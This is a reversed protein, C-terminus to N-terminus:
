ETGNNGQFWNAGCVIECFITTRTEKSRTGAVSWASGDAGPMRLEPTRQVLEVDVADAGVRRRCFPAHFSSVQCARLRLTLQVLRVQLLSKLNSNLSSGLASGFLFTRVGSGSM